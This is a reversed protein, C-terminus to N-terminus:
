ANLAESAAPVPKSDMKKAIIFAKALAEAPTAPVQVKKKSM